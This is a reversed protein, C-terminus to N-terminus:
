IEFQRRVSYKYNSTIYKRAIDCQQPTLGYKEEMYDVYGADTFLGGLIFGVRYCIDSIIESVTVRTLKVKYSISNVNNGLILLDLINSERPSIRKKSILFKVTKEVLLLDNYVPDDVDVISSRNGGMIDSRIQYTNRLLYEVYWAM